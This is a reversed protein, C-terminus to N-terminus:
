EIDVNQRVKGFPVVQVNVDLFQEPGDGGPTNYGIGKVTLEIDYQLNRLVDFAKGEAAGNIGGEAVRSTVSFGKPLDYGQVAGTKDFGTRGVAMSYYRNPISLREEDGTVENIGDYTFNAKIVLLTKASVSALESSGNEYVYFPTSAFAETSPSLDVKENKGKFGIKVDTSNVLYASTNAPAAGLLFQDNKWTEGAAALLGALWKDGTTQTTAWETNANELSPVLMSKNNANLIFVDLIELQPNPYNKMDTAKDNSVTVKNLVVKAVNRYLKLGDEIGSENVYHKEATDEKAGYGLYTTKNPAVTVNYLRTNMSLGEEEADRDLIVEAIDSYTSGIGIADPLTCNALMLVKKAGPEVAVKRSVTEGAEGKNSSEMAVIEPDSETNFVILTLSKIDNENTSTISKSAVPKQVRVELTTGENGDPGNNIPDDDNSCSAFACAIMTGFLLNRLKMNM